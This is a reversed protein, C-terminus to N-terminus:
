EAIKSRRRELPKLMTPRSGGPALMSWTADRASTMALRSASRTGPSAIAVAPEGHRREALAPAEADRRPRNQSLKGTGHQHHEQDGAHIDRAQQERAGDRALPLDGHPDRDARAAGPEDTLPEGFGHEEPNQARDPRQEDGADARRQQVGEHNGLGDVERTFARTRAKVSATPTPLPSSKPSAGTKWASRGFVVAASRSRPVTALPARAARIRPANTM